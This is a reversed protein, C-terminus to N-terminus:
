MQRQRQREAETERLVFANRERAIKWRLEGPKAFANSRYHMISFYDYPSGMSDVQGEVATYRKFNVDYRSATTIIPLLPPPIISSPHQYKGSRPTPLGVVRVICGWPAYAPLAM